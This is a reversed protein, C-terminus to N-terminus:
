RPEQHFVPPILIFSLPILLTPHDATAAGPDLSARDSPRTLSTGINCICINICARFCPSSRLTKAGWSREAKTSDIEFKESALVSNLSDSRPSWRLTCHRSKRFTEDPCIQLNLTMRRGPPDRACEVQNVPRLIPRTQGNAVANGLFCQLILLHNIEPEGLIRCSIFKSQVLPSSRSHGEATREATSVREPDDVKRRM